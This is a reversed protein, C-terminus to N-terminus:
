QTQTNQTLIVIGPKRENIFYIQQLPNNKINQSHQASRSTEKPIVRPDSEHIIDLVRNMYMVWPIYQHSTFPKTM